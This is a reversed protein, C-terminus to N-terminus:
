GFYGGFSYYYEKRRVGHGENLQSHYKQQGSLGVSDILCGALISQVSDPLDNYNKNFCLILHTLEHTEPENEYTQVQALCPFWVGSLTANQVLPPQYHPRYTNIGHNYAHLIDAQLM